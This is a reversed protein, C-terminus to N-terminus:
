LLYVMRVSFILQRIRKAQLTSCYQLCFMQFFAVVFRVAGLIAMRETAVRFNGVTSSVFENVTSSFILLSFPVSAGVCASCFIGIVFM